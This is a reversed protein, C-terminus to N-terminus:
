RAQRVTLELANELGTVSVASVGGFDFDGIDVISSQCSDGLWDFLENRMISGSDVRFPIM